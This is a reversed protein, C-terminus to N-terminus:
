KQLNELTRGLNEEKLKATFVSLSGFREEEWRGFRRRRRRRKQISSNKGKRRRVATVRRPAAPFVSM